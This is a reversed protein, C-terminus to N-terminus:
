WSSARECAAIRAEARDSRHDRRRGARYGFPRKGTPVSVGCGDDKPWEERGRGIASQRRAQQPVGAAMLTSQTLEDDPEQSAPHQSALQKNINALQALNVNTPLTLPGAGGQKIM